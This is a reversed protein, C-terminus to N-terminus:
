SKGGGADARPGILIPLYIALFLLYAASWLIMSTALVHVYALPLAWAGWVRVVAGLVVLAYAAVIPRRVVLPRGTHGLAVRTTVALIMTGFAGATLAHLCNAAWAAQGLLFAAKLALAVVVWGYGVHLVFVIPMGVARRGEWRALNAALVAAAVAALAGAVRTNPAALDAVVVAVVAALAVAELRPAPRISSPKGSGALANRTFM